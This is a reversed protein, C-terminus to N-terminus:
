AKLTLLRALKIRTSNSSFTHAHGACAAGKHSNFRGQRTATAEAGAGVAIDAHLQFARHDTIFALLPIFNKEPEYGVEPQGPM